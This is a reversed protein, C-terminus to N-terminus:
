ISVRDVPARGIRAVLGLLVAKIQLKQGIHEIALDILIELCKRGYAVNVRFVCSSVSLQKAGHHHSKSKMKSCLQRVVM